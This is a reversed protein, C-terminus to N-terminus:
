FIYITVVVSFGSTVFLSQIWLYHSDEGLDRETEGGGNVEGDRRKKIEKQREVERNVTINFRNQPNWCAKKCRLKPQPMEWYDLGLLHWPSNESSGTQGCWVLHWHEEQGTLVKLPFDETAWSLVFFRAWCRVLLLIVKQLFCLVQPFKLKHIGGLSWPSSITLTLMNVSTM